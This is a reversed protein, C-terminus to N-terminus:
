YESLLIGTFNASLVGDPEKPICRVKTLFLNFPCSAAWKEAMNTFSIAKSNKAPSSNGEVHSAKLKQAAEQKAKIHQQRREQFLKSIESETDSKRSTSPPVLVTTEPTASIKSTSPTKSKSVEGEEAQSLKKSSPPQYGAEHLILAQDLVVSEDGDKKDFSDPLKRFDGVEMMLRLADEAIINNGFYFICDIIINLM